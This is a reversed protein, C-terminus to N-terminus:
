TVYIIYYRHTTEVFIIKEISKKNM